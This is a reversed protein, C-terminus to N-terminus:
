SKLYGFSVNRQSLNESIRGRVATRLVKYHRVTANEGVGNEVKEL